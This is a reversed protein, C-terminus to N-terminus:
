YMIFNSSTPTGVFIGVFNSILADLRADAAFPVGSFRGGSWGRVVVVGAAGAFGGGVTDQGHQFCRQVAGELGVTDGGVAGPALDLRELADVLRHHAIETGDLLPPQDPCTRLTKALHHLRGEDSTAAVGLERTKFATIEVAVATCQRYAEAFSSNTVDHQGILGLRRELVPCFVLSRGFMHEKTGIAADPAVRVLFPRQVLGALPGSDRRGHIEVNQSVGMARMKGHAAYRHPDYCSLEAVGVGPHGLLVVGM